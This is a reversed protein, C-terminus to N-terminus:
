DECSPRLLVDALGTERAHFKVLLDARFELRALMSCLFNDPKTSTPFPRLLKSGLVVIFLAPQFMLRDEPTETM